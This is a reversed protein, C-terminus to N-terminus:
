HEVLTITTNQYLSKISQLQNEYTSGQIYTKLLEPPIGFENGVIISNNSFEEYIVMEKSNM